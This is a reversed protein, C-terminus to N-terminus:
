NEPTAPHNHRSLQLLTIEAYMLYLDFTLLCVYWINVYPVIVSRTEESLGVVGM